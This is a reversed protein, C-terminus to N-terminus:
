GSIPEGILETARNLFYDNFWSSLSSLFRTSFRSSVCRAKGFAGDSRRRRVPIVEAIKREGCRHATQSPPGMLAPCDLLLVL